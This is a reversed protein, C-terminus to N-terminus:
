DVEISDVLLERGEVIDLHRDGCEPCLWLYDELEFSHGCSLCVAKTPIERVELAADAAITGKTLEEFYFRMSESVIGSMGGLVVTVKRVAQAEHERAQDLVLRVMSETIAAEHM